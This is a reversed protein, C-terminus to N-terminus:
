PPAVVDPRKLRMREMAFIPDAPDATAGILEIEPATFQVAGAFQRVVDPDDVVLVRIADPPQRSPTNPTM